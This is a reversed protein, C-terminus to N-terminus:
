FSYSTTVGGGVDLSSSNLGFAVYPRITLDDSLSYIAYPSIVQPDTRNNRASQRFDYNVGIDLNDLLDYEVGLGLGLGSTRNLGPRNGYDHGGGLARYLGRVSPTFDGFSHSVDVSFMFDYEGSGINKTTSASPFKIQAGFEFEPAWNQIDPAWDYSLDFLIDGVSTRTSTQPVAEIRVEEPDGPGDMTTIPITFKVMWPGREYRISFPLSYEDTDETLGYDGTSVDLGVSATFRPTVPEPEEKARLQTPAALITLALWSILLSRSRAAASTSSFLGTM